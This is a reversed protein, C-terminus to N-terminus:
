STTYRSGNLYSKVAHCKMVDHALPFVWGHSLIMDGYVCIILVLFLIPCNGSGTVVVNLAGDFRLSTTQSYIVQMKDKNVLVLWGACHTIGLTWCDMCCRRRIATGRPRWHNSAQTHCGGNDGNVEFSVLMWGDHDEDTLILDGNGASLVLDGNGASRATFGDDQVHESFHPDDSKAGPGYREPRDIIEPRSKQPATAKGSLGKEPTVHVVATRFSKTASASSTCCRFRGGDGGDVPDLSGPESGFVSPGFSPMPVGFTETPMAMVRGLPDLSVEVSSTPMVFGGTMKTMPRAQADVDLRLGGCGGPNPDLFDGLDLNMVWLFAASVRDPMNRGGSCELGRTCPVSDVSTFHIDLKVLGSCISSFLRKSGVKSGAYFLGSLATEQIDAFPAGDSWKPVCVGDGILDPVKSGGSFFYDRTFPVSVVSYPHSDPM